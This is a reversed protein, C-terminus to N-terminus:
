RKEFIVHNGVKMLRELRAVKVDPSQAYKVPVIVISRKPLSELRAGSDDNKGKDLVTVDRGLYVDMNESRRVRWTYVERSPDGALIAATKHAVAGYGIYPNLSPVAFAGFFVATMLGYALVMVGERVKGGKRFLLILSAIASCSIIATVVYWVWSMWPAIAASDRVILLVVFASALCVAPVAVALRFWRSAPYRSVQIAAYYVFFPYAPLLYVQLKSSIISLMTLTVWGVSLFMKEERTRKKDRKVLGVIVAGLVMLAWPMFTYWMSTLYYHFPRKHSFSDVARDVTQHFLLNDLYEKGGDLYVGLFWLACLGLLVVWTRLNWYRGFERLRGVVFLYAASGLLPILFGMPGKSFIALFVYLPFLWRSKSREKGETMKFFEYLSLTIWMTMLMDMRLTVMMGTFLGSTLLLLTAFGRYAEPLVQHTWRDMVLATVLGPVLSFLSIIWMCSDGAIWRAAIVIWLYLPPKDAYAVGQNTFAFVSGDRIAEDAISVYRLENAVLFDRVFFLPLLALAVWLMPVWVSSFLVSGKSLGRDNENDM